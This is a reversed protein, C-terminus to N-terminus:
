LCAAFIVVAAFALAWKPGDNRWILACLALAAALTLGYVFLALFM